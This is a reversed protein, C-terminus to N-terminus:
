SQCMQAALLLHFHAILALDQPYVVLHLDIGKKTKILALEDCFNPKRDVQPSAFTWNSGV